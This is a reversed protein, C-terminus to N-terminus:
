AVKLEKRTRSQAELLAVRAILDALREQLDANHQRQEDLRSELETIRNLLQMSM